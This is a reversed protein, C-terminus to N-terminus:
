GPSNPGPKKILRENPESVLTNLFEAMQDLPMVKDVQCRAIAAKPMSDVEASAPDQVITYGGYQKIKKLGTAGDNNAGTLIVGILGPCWACAASEFLVDISPRAYNVRESISLSFTGDEEVLLHYNPPAFYVYGPKAKQKEIAERVKVKSISNLHRIFYGDSDSSIHQVIIVPVPFNEPLNPLLNQLARSGGASVGMVVAKYRRGQNM